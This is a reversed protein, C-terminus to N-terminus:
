RYVTEFPRTDNFCSEWVEDVVKEAQEKDKCNPNGMVSLTARRKICEQFGSAFKFQPGKMKLERMMRCEGSLTSARIESCAHHKLNLWDVKFKLNDYYHIMEHSLIDELHWKDRIQNSCLLIGFEPHFGGTKTMDPCIDCVIQRSPKFIETSGAKASGQANAPHEPNMGIKSDLEEIIRKFKIDSRALKEIQQTMFIVTPSYQLMWDRMSYCEECKKRELQASYDKEYQVKEEPSLGLGTQYQLTRRWFEFGNINKGSDVSNGKDSGSM